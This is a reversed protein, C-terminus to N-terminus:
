FGIAGTVGIVTVPMKSYIMINNGLQGSRNLGWCKVSRDSLLACTHATGVTIATANTVGAVSVSTTTFGFTGDGLQSLTNDGWCKVSLDLLVACANSGGVAIATVTNIGAASLFASIESSGWDGSPIANSKKWCKVSQDILIACNYNKGVAIATATTIGPVLIPPTVDIIHTPSSYGSYYDPYGAYSSYDEGWCKVSRDSLIVCTRDYGAAIAIVTTIGFVSVPISTSHSTRDGLQLSHNSGWCKVSQDSLLACTHSSGAAIATANTIGFVSVPRGTWSDFTGDGLQGYYDNGWCQVSQNALLVCTHNEGAAIATATTIGPVSVPTSTSHFTGDGLKDYNNSGWCKVSQDSLLACTHGEGAVIATATTIGLVSVPASTRHFTGDGLQGSRNEGWCQILQDILIACTHADGATIATATIMSSVSVPTSTANFTGDGLQGSDNSGWCQVSQDLLLACTHADGATIATATTIGSVSIPPTVVTSLLGDRILSAYDYGWCKVSKDSLLACTHSGGAAIATATTIGSVPVPLSTANRWTRDGLEWPGNGWCKISQDSLLACTHGSGASIATANTIGFVSVPTSLITHFTGNGLQGSHNSGWCKVSQDSFLACTHVDGVAIAIATTIGSVSVPPSIKDTSTGNGLQGSHNDGWCKVSHDSLLACTHAAGATIDVPPFFTQILPPTEIPQISPPPTEGHHGEPNACAILSVVLLAILSCKSFIRM